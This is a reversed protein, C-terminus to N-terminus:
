SKVKLGTQNFRKVWRRAFRAVRWFRLGNKALLPPKIQWSDPWHTKQRVTAPFSATWRDTMAGISFHTVVKQRSCRSMAALEPRHFHLWLIAEAYGSINDPPIRRGNSEDVVQRIGSSLDSVVPVVGQGMAELLSLPLGEYDSALLFVDHEELLRPVQTYPINGSFSVTQDPSSSRMARELAPREAGDGAITWVFPVGSAKLQNFIEPFLHVRKQERELRGFYLIRLPRGSDPQPHNVTEPMPVGLPLYSVRVDRFEPMAQIKTQITESVTAMLDVQGAYHSLSQYVVPDDAHAVGIRFVGPPLYRLLEFSVPSLNAVVVTPQFEALSHLAAEACDEYILRESGVFCVPIKLRDFDSALPTESEFSIIQTPIKRRVLEGALNCLFTVAGGLKLSSSVFAVRHNYPSGSDDQSVVNKIVYNCGM